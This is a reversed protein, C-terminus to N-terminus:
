IFFFNMMAVAMTSVKAPQEALAVASVAPFAGAAVTVTSCDKHFSEPILAKVALTVFACVSCFSAVLVVRM